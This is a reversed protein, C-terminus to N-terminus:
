RSFLAQMQPRLTHLCSQLSAYQSGVPDPYFFYLITEVGNQAMTQFLSTAASLAGDPNNAQLCDNGGGDMM